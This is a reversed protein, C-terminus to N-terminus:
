FTNRYVIGGGGIIEVETGATREQANNENTEEGSRMATTFLAPFM